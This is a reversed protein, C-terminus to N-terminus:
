SAYKNELQSSVSEKMPKLLPDLDPHINHVSIMNMLADSVKEM